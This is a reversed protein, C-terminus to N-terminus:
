SKPNKVFIRNKNGLRFKQYIIGMVIFILGVVTTVYIHEGVFLHIFVLSLFPALYVLTSITDTTRALQMARMWFFFSVGMEFLGVYVAPLLATFSVNRFKGLALNLALLFFTAFFFNLFLKVIEERRDRVNFIWYLSWILSSGTALAVGLHDSKEINWVNGQSSILYVGAFCIFLAMFSRSSITQKLLPVSLFVLIIPWIMNLPQAVQAPLLSYAKLLVIYYLFPNLFGLIASRGYEALSFHFIRKMKGQFILVVGLFLLSVVSAYFVLELFDLQRLAIKFASAVTSWFFIAIGAYLYAKAQNNM